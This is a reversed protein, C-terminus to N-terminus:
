ITSSQRATISSDRENMNMSQVFILYLFSRPWVNKRSDQDPGQPNSPEVIQKKLVHGLGHSKRTYRDHRTHHHLLRRRSRVARVSAGLPLWRTPFRQSSRAPSRVMTLQKTKAKRVEFLFDAYSHKRELGIGRSYPARPSFRVRTM